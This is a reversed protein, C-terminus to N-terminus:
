SQTWISQWSKLALPKTLPMKGAQATLRQCETSEDTRCGQLWADAVWTSYIAYGYSRLTATFGPLRKQPHIVEMLIVVPPTTSLLQQAGKLTSEEQGECDIKLLLPKRRAEFITRSAVDLSTMNICTDGHGGRVVGTGANSLGDKKPSKSFCSSGPQDSAGMNIVHVRDHVCNLAANFRLSDQNFAFPEFTYAYYGHLAAIIPEQGLNGGVDLVSWDDQNLRSGIADYFADLWAWQKM